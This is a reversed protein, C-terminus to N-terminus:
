HPSHLRYFEQSDFDSSVGALKGIIGTMDENFLFMVGALDGSNVLLGPPKPEPDFFAKFMRKYPLKYICDSAVLVKYIRNLETVM